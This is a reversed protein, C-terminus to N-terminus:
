DTSSSGGSGSDGDAGPTETLELSGGEEGDGSDEEGETTDTESAEGSVEGAYEIPWPIWSNLM